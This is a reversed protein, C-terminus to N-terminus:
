VIIFLQSDSNQGTNQAKLLDQVIPWIFPTFTKQCEDFYVNYIITNYIFRKFNYINLLCHDLCTFNPQM